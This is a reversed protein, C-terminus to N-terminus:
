QGERVAAAKAARITEGLARLQLELRGDLSGLRSEVICGGTVVRDDEVLSFSRGGLARAIRPQAERLVAIDNAAVRIVVEREEKVRKLVELITQVVGDPTVLSPGAIKCFATVVVEACQEALLLSERAFASEASEVVDALISLSATADEAAKALGDAHGASHGETRAAERLADIDDALTAAIAQRQTADCSGLWDLVTSLSLPEPEVAAVPTACLTPMLDPAPVVPPMGSTLAAKELLSVETDVAFPVEPEPVHPAEPQSWAARLRVRTESLVADRLIM